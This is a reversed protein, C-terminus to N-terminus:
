AAQKCAHLRTHWYHLRLGELRILEPYLAKYIACNPSPRDYSGTARHTAVACGGACWYRWECVRCGQKQDVPISKVGINSARILSLPDPTALTTVPQDLTMQCQAINGHQDIVLYNHGAACARQHAASSDTRDLLTALVSWTPPRQALVAYAARLGAIIYQENAQLVPEADGQQDRYLSLSFRLNHDLLWAVLNPLETVNHATVTVAIDPRLGGAIATTIGATVREFSGNNHQTPRLHNHAAAGGDLSITIQIGLEHLLQVARATLTTGNTLIGAQLHLGHAHAQQQAYRHIRAILKLQLGPEGGAYKLIIQPYGHQVASRIVTDIAAHATADDMQEDSKRIYCYQCRLNCANTLHLWAVLSESEPPPPLTPTPQATALGCTYLLALAAYVDPPCHAPALPLRALLQQAAKNLVAIRSVSPVFVVAYADDLVISQVDPHAYLLDPLTNTPPLVPAPTACDRHFLSQPPAACDNIITPEAPDACDGLLHPPYPVVSVRRDPTRCDHLLQTCAAATLIHFM